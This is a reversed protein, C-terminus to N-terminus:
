SPDVAVRVSVPVPNVAPKLVGLRSGSKKILENVTRLEVCIRTFIVTDIVAETPTLLTVTVFAGGPPPVTVRVSANVSTKGGGESLLM